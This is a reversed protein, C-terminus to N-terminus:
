NKDKIQELVEATTGVVKLYKKEIKTATSVEEEKLAPELTVPEPTIISSTEVVKDEDFAYMGDAQKVLIGTAVLTEFAPKVVKAFQRVYGQKEQVTFKEATATTKMHEIFARQFNIETFPNVAVALTKVTDIVARNLKENDPSSISPTAVQSTSHKMKTIGEVEKLRVIMYERPIPKNNEDVLAQGDLDKPKAIIGKEMEFRCLKGQLDPTFRVEKVWPEYSFAGPVIDVKIGLAQCSSLFVGFISNPKPSKIGRYMEWNHHQLPITIPDENEFHFILRYIEEEYGPDIQYEIWTVRDELPDYKGRRTPLTYTNDTM